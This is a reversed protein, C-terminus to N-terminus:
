ARGWAFKFTLSLTKTNDKPIPTSFVYQWYGASASSIGIAGIGGSANGDSPSWVMTIPQAFSGSVYAGATWTGSGSAQVGGPVTATVAVLSAASSYCLGPNGGTLQHIYSTGNPVNMLGAFDTHFSGINFPRATYPYDVGNLNVSGSFDSVQPTVWLRYYVTLQDIASVALATPNGVGDVILARSFLDSGTATTGVGIETINGVVSGQSFTYQMTLAAKYTPSGLSSATPKSTNIASAALHSNLTTDGNSPSVTGTGVRAYALRRINNVRLNNLGYDTILNDFWDTKLERDTGENLVLRYEGAMGFKLEIM